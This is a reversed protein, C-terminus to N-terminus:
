IIAIVVWWGWALPFSSVAEPTHISKLQALPNNQVPQNM